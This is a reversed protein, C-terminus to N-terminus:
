NAFLNLTTFRLRDQAVVLRNIRLPDCDAPWLCVRRLDAPYCLTLPVRFFAPGRKM